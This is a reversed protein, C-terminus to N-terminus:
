RRLVPNALTGIGEIEVEARQGHEIPGVGAPTGTLLVDGPLLTFITSAYAVLDAVSRVMGATSADQRVQGDVRASIRVDTPDLDTVLYPGLPCSTDFMKARTWTPDSRQADRATVDNACTYGLIVEEARDASLNKCMRSIVVALEAEHHVEQSYPPLVIPDDPGVVTTNPKLFLLPDEPVEHGLEAAHESYNRGVCVVKSRPIVPALLRLGARDLPVRQGTPTPVSYLPDGGVVALENGEVIGYHPDDGVTFRAIKM